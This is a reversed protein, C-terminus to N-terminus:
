HSIQAQVNTALTAIQPKFTSTATRLLAHLHPDTLNARVDSKVGNMKSFAQECLYTSGFMVFTRQALERLKPFSQADLLRYFLPLTQRNRNYEDLLFINYKLDFLEMQFEEPVDEENVEFPNQVLRFLTGNKRL